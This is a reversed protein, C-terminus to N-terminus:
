ENNRKGPMADIRTLKQELGVETENMGVEVHPYILWVLSLGFLAGTMTRLLPPSERLPFISGFSAAFGTAVSGDIPTSFYGFLQSFGDIGIPALGFLLFAWVPMGKIKYRHRLLGYLLGGFLIFGYIAMDRACLATKYGMQANGLFKRAAFTFAPWNSESIGDFEPISPMYEEFPTYNSPAIERPYFPQEGFLFISRSAMQHCMPGYITYIFRAPAVAGANMLAPALLPLGVYIAVLFNFSALWHKSFLYIAQDLGVVVTRQWGTVSQKQSAMIIIFLSNPIILLSNIARDNM